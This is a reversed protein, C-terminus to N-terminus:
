NDPPTKKQQVIEVHSVGLARKLENVATLIMEQPDNTTRIKTTIDAVLHEREARTSTEEFLRANDLALGLREAVSGLITLEDKNFNKKDKNPRVRITGIIQSHLQIPIDVAKSDKTEIAEIDDITKSTVLQGGSLTQYYGLVESASKNQWSDALYQRFASRSELLANQAEELLQVNDIAIALQDALLGLISVDTDTFANPTVSQVDLAGITTGRVSLPLAMESHTEPLDPNNFYVADMGTDLAIRPKGTSTVYGVIGVQGVELMHQRKLMRQGGASNAARLVAYKKNESILFIGVHYFGFRESVTQAILPLLKEMEKETSLYRGIETITQLNNARKESEISTQELKESRQKLELTRQTVQQELGSILGQIQRAMSNFANNLRGIEDRAESVVLKTYNGNAIQEAALQLRHLPSTIERMAFFALLINGAIAFLAFVGRQNAILQNKIIALEGVNAALGIVALTDAGITLPFYGLAHPSIGSDSVLQDEIIVQGTLAQKISAPDLLYPSFFELEKAGEFNSAAIRGNVILVLENQHGPFINVGSLMEDDILRSGILVGVTKGFADHIPIAAAISINQLDGENSLVAGSADFGLLALKILANEAESNEATIDFLRNSNIDVVDMDDFKFRTANILLESQVDQINGAKLAESLGPNNSLTIANNITEQEIEDFRNQVIQANQAVNQRGAQLAFTNMSGNTVLVMGLLLLSFILFALINLKIGVTLDKIIKFLRM